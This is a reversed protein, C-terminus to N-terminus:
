AAVLKPMTEEFCVRNQTPDFIRDGVSKFFRYNWLSEAVFVRQIWRYGLGSADYSSKFSERAHFSIRNDVYVLTGPTIEVGLSVKKVAKELNQLAKRARENVPIVM